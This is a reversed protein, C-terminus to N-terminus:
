WHTRGIAVDGCATHEASKALRGLLRGTFAQTLITERYKAVLTPIRALDTRARTTRGALRDISAVIRKQEPLPAIPVVIATIENRNLEVQNTSGSQMNEIKGQINPSKIFYFLYSADINLNSRVITVHSDVVASRYRALGAFLAARGITGTGTSNWLIDNIRVYREDSWLDWTSPAVFKLHQEDIGEWRICRQNIVPLNSRSAYKPSRGRSVYDAVEEISAEAWGKPLESM